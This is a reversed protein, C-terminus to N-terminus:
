SERVELRKLYRRKEVETTVQMRPARIIRGTADCPM